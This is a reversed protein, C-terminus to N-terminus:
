VSGAGLGRTDGSESGVVGSTVGVSETGVSEGHIGVVTVTGISQESGVMVCAMKELM